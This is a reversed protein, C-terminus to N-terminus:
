KHEELQAIANRLVAIMKERYNPDIAVCPFTKIGLISEVEKPSLANRLDQKNAIGVLIANPEISKAISIVNRTAEANDRTSDTVILTIKTNRLFIPWTRHYQAQGALDWINIRHGGITLDECGVNAGITPFYSMELGKGKLLKFITTKGVAGYGALTVKIADGMTPIEVDKVEQQLIGSYEQKVNGLQERPAASLQEQRVNAPQEQQVIGLPEAKAAGEESLTKLGNQVREFAESLENQVRRFVENLESQVRQLVEALNAIAIGITEETRNSKPITMKALGRM